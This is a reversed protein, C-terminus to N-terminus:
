MLLCNFISESQPENLSVQEPPPRATTTIKGSLIAEILNSIWHAPYGLESVHMVLRLFMTMNLPSYILKPDGDGRCRPYPLCFKLFHSHLWHFFKTQPMLQEFTLPKQPIHEWLLYEMLLMPGAQDKPPETTLKFQFHSQILKRDYMILYESLYQSVTEFAQPNRMNCSTVGTGPGHELIRAGSLFPTFPGGVYDSPIM